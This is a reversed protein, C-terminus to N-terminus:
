FHRYCAILRHEVILRKEMEPSGQGNIMKAKIDTIIKRKGNDTNTYVEYSKKENGGSGESCTFTNIQGTEVIIPHQPGSLVSNCVNVTM